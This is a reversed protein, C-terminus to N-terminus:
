RDENNETEEDPSSDNESPSEEIPTPDSIKEGGDKKDLYERGKDTLILINGRGRKIKKILGYSELESVVLSVKAEGINVMERLEKQTM